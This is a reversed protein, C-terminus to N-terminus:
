LRPFVAVAAHDADPANQIHLRGNPLVEAAKSQPNTAPQSKSPLNIVPIIYAIAIGGLITWELIRQLSDPQHPSTM